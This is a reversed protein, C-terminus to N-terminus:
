AGTWVRPASSQGPLPARLASGAVSDLQTGPVRLKFLRLTFRAADQRRGVDWAESDEAAEM